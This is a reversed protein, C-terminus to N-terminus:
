ALIRDVMQNVAPVRDFQHLVAPLHTDVCVSDATVRFTDAAGDGFTLVNSELNRHFRTKFPQAPDNILKNFVAQDVVGRKFRVIEHFLQRELQLLSGVDGFVTGACAIPKGALAAVGEAGYIGRYWDTDMNHQGYTLSDDQLFAHVMGPELGKFADAQFVVDRADSLMVLDYGPNQELFQVYAFHRATIPHAWIATLVEHVERRKANPALLRDSWELAEFVLRFLARLFTSSQVQAWISTAPILRISLKAALAVVDASTVNTFVVVDVADAPMVRRISVALRSFEAPKINTAYSLIANKM